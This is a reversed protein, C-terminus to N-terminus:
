KELHNIVTNLTNRVSNLTKGVDPLPNLETGNFPHKIFERLYTIQIGVEKRLEVLEKVPDIIHKGAFYDAIIDKLVKEMTHFYFECDEEPLRKRDYEFPVDKIFYDCFIGDIDVAVAIGNCEEWYPTAWVVIEENINLEIQDNITWYVTGMMTEVDLVWGDPISYSLCSGGSDHVLPLTKHNKSHKELLMGFYLARNDIKEM